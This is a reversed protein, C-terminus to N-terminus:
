LVMAPGIGNSFDVGLVFREVPRLLWFTHGKGLLQQVHVGDFEGKGKRLNICLWLLFPGRDEAGDTM